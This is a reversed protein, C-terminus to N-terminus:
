DATKTAAEGGSVRQAPSQLAPEQCVPETLQLVTIIEKPSAVLQPRHDLVAQQAATLQHVQVMWDVKVILLAGARVVADKTPQLAQLVPAVNQLLTATVQADQAQVLRSDAVHLATLLAERKLSADMRRFWSGIVPEGRSDISVDATALWQEVAVEVQGHIDEDALYISIAMDGVANAGEASGHVRLVPLMSKGSPKGRGAALIRAIDRLGQRWPRGVGAVASRVLQEDTERGIPPKPM